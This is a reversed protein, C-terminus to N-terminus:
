RNPKEKVGTLSVLPREQFPPKIAFLFFFRRAHVELSTRSSFVIARLFVGAPRIALFSFLVSPAVRWFANLMPSESSEREQSKAAAECAKIPAPGRIRAPSAPVYTNKNNTSAASAALQGTSSHTTRHRDRRRAKSQGSFKPWAIKPRCGPRGRRGTSRTM